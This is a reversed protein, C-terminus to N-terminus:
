DLHLPAFAMLFSSKSFTSHLLLDQRRCSQMVTQM